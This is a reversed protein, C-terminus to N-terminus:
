SKTQQPCKFVGASVQDIISTELKMNRTTFRSLSLIIGQSEPKMAAPPEEIALNKRSVQFEFSRFEVEM